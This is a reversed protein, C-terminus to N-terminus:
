PQVIFCNKKTSSVERVFMEIGDQPLKGCMKLKIAATLLAELEDPAYIPNYWLNQPLGTTVEYQNM